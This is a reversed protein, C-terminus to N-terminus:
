NNSPKNYDECFSSMQNKFTERTSVESAAKPDAIAIEALRAAKAAKFDAKVAELAHYAELNSPEEKPDKEKKEWEATVKDCETKNELYYTAVDNKLNCEITNIEDESDASWVDSIAGEYLSVVKGVPGDYSSGCSVLTVAAVIFMFFKKMIM